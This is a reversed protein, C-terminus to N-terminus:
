FIGSVGKFILLSKFAIGGSFTETHSISSGLVIWEIQIIRVGLIVMQVLVSEITQNVEIVLEVISSELLIAAMDVFIVLELMSEIQPIEQFGENKVKNVLGPQSWKNVDNSEEVPRIELKESIHSKQISTSSEPNSQNVPEDVQGDEVAV